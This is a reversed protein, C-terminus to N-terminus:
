RVDFRVERVFTQKDNVNSELRLTFAGSLQALPILTDLAALRRGDTATAVTLREERRLTVGPGELTLVVRTETERTRWFVPAFVRLTQQPAFTRSTTPQFPVIAKVFDDGLSPPRVGDTLGLVVAGMQIASESPKPADVPIQVTGARELARSAVGIRLTLPQDPLDIADNIVVPFTELAAGPPRVTYTRTVSAKVKGDGDLALIQVGLTDTAVGAMTATPYAVEITVASRMGKNTPLLPAVTARLGLGRVDVGSTMAFGLREGAPADATKPRAFAYGSRGRVRAGERHVTVELRRYFADAGHSANFGMVYFSSNDAVIAQVANSLSSQNTFARGGTNIATIALMEQQLRIRLPVDTGLPSGASSMGIGGRVADAPQVMGRPDLTYIPVIARRAHSSGEIAMATTKITSALSRGYSMVVNRAGAGNGTRGLADIGLGLAERTHDIGKLLRARDTTFNIGLDSRGVFVLAVEDTPALSQIFETAIHKVQILEYELTHLDDILPAPIM